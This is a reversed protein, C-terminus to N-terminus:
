CMPAAIPHVPQVLMAQPPAGGTLTPGSRRIAKGSSLRLPPGYRNIVAQETTENVRGQFYGTEFESCAVSGILMVAVWGVNGSWQM